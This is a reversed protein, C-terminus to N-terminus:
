VTKVIASKCIRAFHTLANAGIDAGSRTRTNPDFGDAGFHKIALRNVLHVTQTDVPKIHLAQM